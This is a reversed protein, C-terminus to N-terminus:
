ARYPILVRPQDVARSTGVVADDFVTIGKPGKANDHEQQAALMLADDWDKGQESM